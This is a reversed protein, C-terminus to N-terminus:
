CSPSNFPHECLRAPVILTLLTNYIKPPHVWIVLCLYLKLTVTLNDHKEQMNARGVAVGICTSIAGGGGGGFYFFPYSSILLCDFIFLFM